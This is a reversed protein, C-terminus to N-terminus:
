NQLKIPMTFISLLSSGLYGGGGPTEIVFVDGPHMEVEYQGNLEVITGDSRVVRNCGCSGAGGGKLGFPPLVRHSSLIGASMTELFRIKRIVGCGGSYKGRGGSGHRISFSELLVPFRWELVEPDTIRSNTMHTQVADTGDFGDGAGSGGCITEYYQYSDNGFTFNNMTGQSAAIVGLAGFLADVIYQSTEVNGGVVAAPYQPNLMSGEPIIIDIPRICGDNLPIDDQVLTRFVYLVAAKCVAAPANFNDPLQRTTGTFDVCARRAKRDITIRVKIISGNDLTYTFNGNKLVDLVRCVAEKANDQVHGMYARVTDLSYHDVLKQLEQIGKKNAAIQARIDAINQRPNRAPYTGSRLWDLLEQECFHGLDMLKLGTSLVGEEHITRSMPPMSGPTMSGIDAHHGRSAVYFLVDNEKKFLPTIVTIDPLHTGGNFPSNILYVDGPKLDKGYSRIVAQVSEGMSGLHM